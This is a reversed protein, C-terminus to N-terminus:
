PKRDRRREEWGRRRERQRESVMIRREIKRATLSTVPVGDVDSGCRSGEDADVIGGLERVLKGEDLEGRERPRVVVLSEEVLPERLDDRLLSFCIESSSGRTVLISLDVVMTLKEISEKM